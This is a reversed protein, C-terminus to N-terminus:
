GLTDVDRLVDDPRPVPAAEAEDIERAVLHAVETDIATFEGDAEPWQARLDAIPDHEALWAKGADRDRYEYDPDNLSHARVRGVAIELFAPRGTRVLEVLSSATKCVAMVDAGDVWATEMGIGAVMDAIAGPEGFMREVSMSHAWGNNECVFLCPARWFHALRLTEHFLGQAAAGDGVFSVGIVERGLRRAAWAAGAAWPMSGGRGGSVGSERGFLEALLASVPVGKAIAHGHGRHTSTVLDDVTLPECVGAAAAEQGVSSHFSGGIKNERHLREVQSEVERILAMTRYLRLAVAQDGM